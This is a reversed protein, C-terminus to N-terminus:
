HEFKINSLMSLAERADVRAKYEIKAAHRIKIGNDDTLLLTSKEMSILAADSLSKFDLLKPDLTQYTKNIFKVLGIESPLPYRGREAIENLSGKAPKKEPTQAEPSTIAADLTKAFFADIQARGRDALRAAAEPDPFSSQGANNPTSGSPQAGQSAPNQGGSLPPHILGLTNPPTAPRSTPNVM